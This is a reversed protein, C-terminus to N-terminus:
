RERFSACATERCNCAGCGSIEVHEAMCKYNANHVCKQAECDVSIIHSPHSTANTMSEGRKPAFSECCTDDDCVAHKGGVMIDGKCCCENKNYTCTDAKCKLEAM